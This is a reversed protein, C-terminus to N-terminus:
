EGEMTPQNDLYIQVAEAVLQNYTPQRGGGAARAVAATAALRKLAAVQALPLRVNVTMKNSESM